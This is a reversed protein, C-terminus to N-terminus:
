DTVDIRVTSPPQPRANTRDEAPGDSSGTSGAESESSPDAPAPQTARLTAALGAAFEAVQDLVEPGARRLLAVGQCFPCYKCEPPHEHGPEGTSESAPSGPSSGPQSASGAQEAASQVLQFLRRADDAWPGTWPPPTAREPGTREASM